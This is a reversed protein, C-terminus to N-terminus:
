SRAFLQEVEHRPFERMVPRGHPCMSSTEAETLADLLAYAEQSEIERGSRISGHCALRSIVDDLHREVAQGWSVWAPESILDEVVEKVSRKALLAPVARVVFNGDGFLECDFGVRRLAEISETSHALSGAPLELLEPVLLLQSSIQGSLFQCKLRYFVVREHAAHMDLMYFTNDDSFLLFCKFIQGLYRKRQQTPAAFEESKDNAEAVPFGQPMAYRFEAVPFRLESNTETVRAAAFGFSPSPGAAFDGDGAPVGPAQRNLYERVTNAILLYLKQSDRFRVEAKQPHVNVDLDEPPVSLRMIGSPYQGPRLFTGYADRVAKLLTKDKIIRGNVLFRLRQAGVVADAPQSLLGDVHYGGLRDGALAYPKSGAIKLEVARGRFEQPGRVAVVERGDIVLSFSITPYGLAFDTILSKILSTETQQSKLFRRRAPVNHFLREVRIRTGRSVIAPRVQKATGGSLLVMTGEGDEKGTRLCFESVSAISALAEGRFGLTAIAFLDDVSSVKSTAFREVALDADEASMGRGNDVVEIATLGGQEIIVTVTTAGADISNEVLEKVVSAPREVVEGAAIQNIVNDDLRQIVQDLGTRPQELQPAKPLTNM